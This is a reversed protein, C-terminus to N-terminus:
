HEAVLARVREVIRQYERRAQAPDAFTRVSPGVRWNERVGVIYLISDEGPAGEILEISVGAIDTNM